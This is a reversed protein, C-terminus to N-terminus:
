NVVTFCLKDVTQSKPTGYMYCPICMYLIFARYRRTHVSSFFFSIQSLGIVFFGIDLSFEFVLPCCFFAVLFKSKVVLAPGSIVTLKLLLSWRVPTTLRTLPYGVKASVVFATYYFPCVNLFKNIIRKIFVSSWCSVLTSLHFHFIHNLNFNKKLINFRLTFKVLLFWPVM